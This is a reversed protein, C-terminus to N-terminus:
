LTCRTNGVEGGDKCIFFTRCSGWIHKFNHICFYYNPSALAVSNLIMTVVMIKSNLAVLNSKSIPFITILIHGEKEISVRKAGIDVLQM